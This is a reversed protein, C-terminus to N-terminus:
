APLRDVAAKLAALTNASESAEAKVERLKADAKAKADRADALTKANGEHAKVAEDYQKRLADSM